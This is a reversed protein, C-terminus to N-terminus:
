RADDAGSTGEMKAVLGELADLKAALHQKASPWNDNTTLVLGYQADVCAKRAEDHAKTLESAEPDSASPHKAAAVRQELRHLRQAVRSQFAMREGVLDSKEVSEVSEVQEVQARPASAPRAEPDIAITDGDSPPRASASCGAGVSLAVALAALAKFRVSQSVSSRSMIFPNLVEQALRIQGYKSYLHAPRRPVQSTRPTAIRRGGAALRRAAAHVQLQVHRHERAVDALSFERSIRESGFFKMKEVCSAGGTTSM